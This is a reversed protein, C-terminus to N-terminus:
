GPLVLKSLNTIRSYHLHGFFVRNGTTRVLRKRPQVWRDRSLTRPLEITLRLWFAIPVYARVDDVRRFLITRGRAATRCIVTAAFRLFGAFFLQRPSGARGGPFHCPLPRSLPM